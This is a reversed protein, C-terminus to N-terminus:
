GARLACMADALANAQRGTTHITTAEPWPAMDAAMATAIAPDADSMSGTRSKIRHETVSAPADCRLAVLDSHTREAIKDAHERATAHSWSADLVVSEGRGLLVEARHLLEDYTRGTHEPAYIGGGYPATARALPDIAALEKRM